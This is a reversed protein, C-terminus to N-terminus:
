TATNVLDSILILVAKYEYSPIPINIDVISLPDSQQSGEQCFMIQFLDIDFMFGIVIEKATSAKVGANIDYDVRFMGLVVLRNASYKALVIM